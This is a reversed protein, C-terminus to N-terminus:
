DDATANFTREIARNAGGAQAYIDFATLVTAGNITVDFTRREAATHFIEAFYLTVALWRRQAEGRTSRLHAGSM